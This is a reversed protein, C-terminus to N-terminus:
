KAAPTEDLATKLAPRSHLTISLLFSIKGPRNLRVIRTFFAKVVSPCPYVRIL